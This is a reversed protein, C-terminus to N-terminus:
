CNDECKDEKEGYMEPGTSGNNCFVIGIGFGLLGAGVVCAMFEQGPGLLQPLTGDPNKLLAQFLWLLFTLM